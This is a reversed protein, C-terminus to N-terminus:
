APTLVNPRPRSSASAAWGVYLGDGIRKEIARRTAVHHEVLKCTRARGNQRGLFDPSDTQADFILRSVDIDGDFPPL